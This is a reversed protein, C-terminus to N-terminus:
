NPLNAKEGLDVVIVLLLNGTEEDETLAVEVEDKGHFLLLEQIDNILQNNEKNM